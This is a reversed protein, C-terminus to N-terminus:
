AEARPSDLLIRIESGRPSVLKQRGEIQSAVLGFAELIRVDESVNKKDRKARAALDLVQLPKGARSMLDLLRLRAPTLRALDETKGLVLTEVSYTDKLRKPNEELMLLTVLDDEAGAVDEAVARKLGERDEYKALIERRWARGTLRRAIVIEM